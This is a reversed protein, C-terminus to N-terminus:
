VISRASVTPMTSLSILSDDMASSWLRLQSGIAHRMRKLSAV